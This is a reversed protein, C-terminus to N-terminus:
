VGTLVKTKAMVQDDDYHGIHIAKAPCAAVCIGCGHCAAPNIEAVQRETVRPVQYPCVRVCTLCSTCKAGEVTSVIGGVELYPKALFSAARAAAAYAQAITEESFKPYHALGCVLVGEASFDVPRLKTHAELFFGDETLPVKLAAALAANGETPRVAEALVLLDAPLRLEEGLIADWATVVLQGDEVSVQPERDEYRLFIIGAERAKTYYQERFGYTRVDKVLMYINADPNLERVKMANKIATTCCIRSCYRYNVCQIFVVNQALAVPEPDAAVRVQFDLSTMVRPDQGLLHADEHAERGGVAVITAGHEIVELGGSRQITSKFNGVFGTTTLVKSGLMVQIRPETRVQEILDRLYVQPDYGEVTYHLQRFNGGLVDEQEVLHVGFGQAALAVAANMGAIGGGIVLANQTVPVIHTHLPHLHNARAVAMCVLSKAKETAAEPDNSHVWSCQDRINAMEVLFPNLGVEKGTEQFLPLHTRPTCASVVLRNLKYEQVAAQLLEQTDQACAYMTTDAFVVNPLMSAYQAVAKVDVVGAINTGCHCIFVGIRPVEGDKCFEDPYVRHEVLTDRALGVIELCKAAAASGRTVSEAIDMPEVFPGAVFIGPRTTEMPAFKTTACFHHENLAINLAGAVTRANWSPAMGIALVVLDFEEEVIRGDKAQYKVILNHNAPVEKLGSPRCRVYRTGQARARQYYADYGKGHARVDMMFITCELGPIHEKALMAGKTGFMCCVSSCYNHHRDRSGVCQLIAMRKPEEGDSQRVVKGKTPGSASLLRELQLSTIVNPFRGFGYEEALRADFPEFGPALVISGVEIEEEWERQDFDIANLTCAEACAKNCRGTTLLLCNDPDITAALPVAQPFPIYAAGRKGLGANLESPIRNRLVCAEACSGCGTCRALDVYRAKHRVRAQFRGVEGKVGVVDCYSLLTINPNRSVEVLKPSIICTACDNTPFTKDFQVMKGGINPAAEVLYVKIGSAALDLAAQMGAIGGGVVMAAGVVRGDQSM